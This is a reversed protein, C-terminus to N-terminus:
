EGKIEKIRQEIIKKIAWSQKESMKGFKEPLENAYEIVSDIDDIAALDERIDDFSLRGSKSSKSITSDQEIADDDDCAVRMALQVTYRRAYTLSAGYAQAANMAKSEIPVVRAGMNWEGKDDLYEVFEGFECAKVRMKPISVGARYLDALSSYKYNHANSTNKIIKGEVSNAESM